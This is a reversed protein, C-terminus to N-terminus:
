PQGEWKRSLYRGAIRWAQPGLLLRFTLMELRRAWPYWRRGRSFLVAEVAAGAPIAVREFWWAAFRVLGARLGHVVGRRRQRPSRGDDPNAWRSSESRCAAVLAFFAETLM